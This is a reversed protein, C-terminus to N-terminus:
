RGRAPALLQPIVHQELYRRVGEIVVDLVQRQSRYLAMDDANVRAVLGPALRLLGHLGAAQRSAAGSSGVGLLLGPVPPSVDPAPNTVVLSPLLQAPQHIAHWGAVLMAVAVGLEGVLLLRRWRFVWLRVADALNLLM